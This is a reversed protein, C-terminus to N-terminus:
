PAIIAPITALSNAPYSNGGPNVFSAWGNTSVYIPDTAAYDKGAYNFGSWSLATPNIVFVSDDIGGGGLVAPSPNATWAVAPISFSYNIGSVQSFVSQFQTVFLTAAVLSKLSSSSIAKCFSTSNFKM